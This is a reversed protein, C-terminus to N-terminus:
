KHIYLISIDMLIFHINLFYSTIQKVIFIVLTLGSCYLSTFVM